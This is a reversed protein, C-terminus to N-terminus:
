TLHTKKYYIPFPEGWYRQRSFIADRLKYNIQLSASQKELLGKFILDSAKKSSLGNLVESNKLPTNKETHAQKSCDINEFIEPININFEKAFDHDRQDGAPVGM